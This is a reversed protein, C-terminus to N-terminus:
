QSLTSSGRFIRWARKMRELSLAIGGDAPIAAGCTGTQGGIVTVPVGGRSAAEVVAAVEETSGPKVLWAPHAEFKRSIDIRYHEGIADGSSLYREGVIAALRSSLADNM